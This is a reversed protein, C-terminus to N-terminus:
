EKDRFVVKIEAAEYVYKKEIGMSQATPWVQEVLAEISGTGTSGGKKKNEIPLDQTTDDMTSMIFNLANEVNNGTEM